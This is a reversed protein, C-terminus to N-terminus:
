GHPVAHIALSAGFDGVGHQSAKRRPLQHHQPQKQRVKRAVDGFDVQQKDLLLELRRLV